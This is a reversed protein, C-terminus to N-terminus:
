RVDKRENCFYLYFQSVGAPNEVSEVYYKRDAKVLRDGVNAKIAGLRQIIVCDVEHKLAKFKEVENQKLSSIVGLIEDGTASYEIAQRGTDSIRTQKREILFREFISRPKLYM